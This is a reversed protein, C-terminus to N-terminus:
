QSRALVIFLVLLSLLFTWILIANHAAKKAKGTEWWSLPGVGQILFTTVGSLNICILNTALLLAAGLAEKWYGTGLLMGLTVLPPLLAVAVMVGILAGPMGATFSLTAACGAALALVVDGIGVTTRSAIEPLNPDIELLLGLVASFILALLIGLLNVKISRVALDKDGLTTAFALSV